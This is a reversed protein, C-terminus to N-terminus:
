KPENKLVRSIIQASITVSLFSAYMVKGILEDQKLDFYSCCHLCYNVVILTIFDRKMGLRKLCMILTIIRREFTCNYLTLLQDFIRDDVRDVNEISWGHNLKIGAQKNMMITPRHRVLREYLSRNFHTFKDMRYTINNSKQVIDSDLVRINFNPHMYILADFMRKTYTNAKGPYIDISMDKIKLDLFILKFIELYCEFVYKETRNNTNVHKSVIKCTRYKNPKSARRKLYTIAEDFATIDNDLVGKLKDFRGYDAEIIIVYLCIGDKPPRTQIANPLVNEEWQQQNLDGARPIIFHGDQNM